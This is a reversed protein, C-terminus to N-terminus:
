HIENRLLASEFRKELERLLAPPFTLVFPAQGEQGQSGEVVTSSSSSSGSSSSNSFKDYADAIQFFRICDGSEIATQDFPLFSGFVAGSTEPPEKYHLLAVKSADLTKINAHRWTPSGRKKDELQTVYHVFFMKVADSRMILKAEHRALGNEFHGWRGLRPLIHQTPPASRSCHAIKIPLVRFAPSNPYQSFTDHVLNVLSHSSPSSSTSSSSSSFSTSSSSSSSSSAAFAIFEDDDVHIFYRSTHRFRSYCSALATTHAIARPPFFERQRPNTSNNPTDFWMAPRGSAMGRACNEYPWYVITVKGKVAYQKLLERLRQHVSQSSSTIYLFIHDVGVLLYYEVWELLMSADVRNTASCISLRHKKRQKQSDHDASIKCVPFLPTEVDDEEEVLSSSSSADPTTILRLKMFNWERESPVPCSVQITGFSAAMEKGAIISSTTSGVLIDVEDNDGVYRDEDLRHYFLCSLQKGLIYQRALTNQDVRVLLNSVRGYAFKSSHEPFKALVDRWDRENIFCSRRSLTTVDITKAIPDLVAEWVWPALPPNELPFYRAQSFTANCFAGSNTLPSAHISLTAFVLVVIVIYAFIRAQM